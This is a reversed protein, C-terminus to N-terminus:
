KKQHLAMCLADLVKIAEDFDRFLLVVNGEIGVNPEEVYADALAGTEEIFGALPCFPDHGKTELPHIGARELAAVIDDSLRVNLALNKNLGLRRVEDLVKAVHKSAGYSPRGARIGKEARTIRGDVGAYGKPTWLAVNMGVEPILQAICPLRSLRKIFFSYANLYRDYSSAPFGYEEYTSGIQPMSLREGGVRGLEWFKMGKSRCKSAFESAYDDRVVAVVCGYSPDSLSRVKRLEEVAPGETFGLDGTVDYIARQIGGESVDHLAKVDMHVLEKLIPVPTLRRWDVEVEGQGTLWDLWASELFPEGLLYLRDGPSPDKAKRIRKGWATVAILPLEIGEYAGTHGGVVRIGFSRAEARVAEVLELAEEARGGPPLLVEDVAYVPEAFSSLLNGIAYSLSFFPLTDKPLGIAPATSVVLDGAEGSDLPWGEPSAKGLM